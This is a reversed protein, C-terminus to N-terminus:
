AMARIAADLRELGSWEVLTRDILVALGWEVSAVGCTPCAQPTVRSAQDLFPDGGSGDELVLCTPCTLLSEALVPPEWASGGGGHEAGPVMGGTMTTM